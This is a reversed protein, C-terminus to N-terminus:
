QMTPRTSPEVVAGPPVPLGPSQGWRFLVTAGSPDVAELMAGKTGFVPTFENFSRGVYVRGRRSDTLHTAEFVASRGNEAVELLKIRAYPTPGVTVTEGLRIVKRQFYRKWGPRLEGAAYRRPL